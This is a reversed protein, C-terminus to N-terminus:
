FKFTSRALDNVAIYAAIIRQADIETLPKRKDESVVAWEGDFVQVATLGPTKQQNTPKRAM